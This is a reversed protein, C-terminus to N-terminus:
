NQHWYKISTSFSIHLLLRIYHSLTTILLYHAYPWLSSLLYKIFAEFNRHFFYGNIYLCQKFFLLWVLFKNPKKTKLGLCKLYNNCKYAVKLLWQWLQSTYRLGFLFCSFIKTVRACLYFFIHYLFKIFQWDQHVTLLILWNGFDAIYYM